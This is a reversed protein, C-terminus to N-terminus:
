EIKEAVQIGIEDVWDWEFQEHTDDNELCLYQDLTVFKEEYASDEVYGFDMNKLLYYEIMIEQLEGRKSKNTKYTYEFLRLTHPIFSWFGDRDSWNKNLYEDFDEKNTKFCYEKLKLLNVKVDLEIKDTTFNYERPSHIGKFGKLEMGLPNDNWGKEMAEIWIDIMALQYNKFGDNRRFEWSYGDPAHDGCPEYLDDSCFLISDYFGPFIQASFNTYNVTAM